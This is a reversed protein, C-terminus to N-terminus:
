PQPKWKTILDVFAQRQAKEEPTEGPQDDVILRGKLPEAIFVTMPRDGHLRRLEEDETEDHKRNTM